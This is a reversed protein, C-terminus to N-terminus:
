TPRGVATTVVEFRRIAVPAPTLPPDLTLM